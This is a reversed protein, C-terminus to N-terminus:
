PAHCQFAALSSLRVALPLAYLHCVPWFDWARFFAAMLCALFFVERLSASPEALKVGAFTFDLACGSAAVSVGTPKGITPIPAEAPPNSASIVSNVAM